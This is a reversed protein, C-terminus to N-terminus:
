VPADILAIGAAGLREALDSVAGPGITSMMVVASGTELAAAAGDDGFLAQAAQRPTAVMVFLQEASAAAEAPSHASRAGAQVLERTNTAVPDFVALSHGEEGLLRRAMPRGMAGLGLWALQVM